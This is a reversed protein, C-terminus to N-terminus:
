HIVPSVRRSEITPHILGDITTREHLTARKLSLTDGALIYKQMAISDLYGAATQAPTHRRGRDHRRRSGGEGSAESIEVASSEFPEGGDTAVPVAGAEVTCDQVDRIEARM